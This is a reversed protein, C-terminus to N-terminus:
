THKLHTSRLIDLVRQTWLERARKLKIVVKFFDLAQPKSDVVHVIGRRLDRVVVEESLNLARKSLYALTNGGSTLMEICQVTLSVSTSPVTDLIYKHKM